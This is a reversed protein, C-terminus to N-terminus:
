NDDTAGNARQVSGVEGAIRLDIRAGVPLERLLFSKIRDIGLPGAQDLEVRVVPSFPPISAGPGFIGGDDTVVAHGGTMAELLKEVGRRTGSWRLQQGVARLLPRQIAAPDDAPDFTLGLWSAMYALMYPPALDTDLQFEISGIRDRISDAIEEATIAFARVVADQALVGPLQNVLWGKM